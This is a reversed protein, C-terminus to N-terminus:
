SLAKCIHITRVQSHPLLRRRFHTSGGHLKGSGLVRAHSSLATLEARHCASSSDPSESAVTNLELPVHSHGGPPLSCTLASGKTVETGIYVTGVAGGRLTVTMTNRGTARSPCLMAGRSPSAAYLPWYSLSRLLLVKPTPM